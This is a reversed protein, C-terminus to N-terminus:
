MVSRKCDESGLQGRPGPHWVECPVAVTIGADRLTQLGAGGVVPNPDQVGVVVQAGAPLPPM